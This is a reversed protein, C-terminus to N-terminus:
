CGRCIGKLKKDLERDMELRQRDSPSVDQPILSPDPERHGIPAEWAGVPSKPPVNQGPGEAQAGTSICAGVLSVLITVFIIKM